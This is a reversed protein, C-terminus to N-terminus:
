FRHTRVRLSNSAKEYQEKAGSERDATSSLINILGQAMVFQNKLNEEDVAISVTKGSWDFSIVPKETMNTGGPPISGGDSTGFVLVRDTLSRPRCEM